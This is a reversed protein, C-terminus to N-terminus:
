AYFKQLLIKFINNYFTTKEFFTFIKGLFLTKRSWSDMVGCQYGLKGARGIDSIRYVLYTQAAQSVSMSFLLGSNSFQLYIVRCIVSVDCDCAHSVLCRRICPTFLKHVSLRASRASYQITPMGCVVAM